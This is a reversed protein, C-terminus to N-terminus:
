QKSQLHAYYCKEARSKADELTAPIDDEFWIGGIDESLYSVNWWWENTNISEVRLFYKKCQSVASWDEYGIEVWAVAPLLGNQEIAASSNGNSM